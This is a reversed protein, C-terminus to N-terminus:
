SLTLCKYFDYVTNVEGCKSLDKYNGVSLVCYLNHQLAVTYQFQIITNVPFLCVDYM